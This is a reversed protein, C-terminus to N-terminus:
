KLFCAIYLFLVLFIVCIRHIRNNVYYKSIYWELTEKRNKNRKNQVRIYLCLIQNSTWFPHPCTNSISLGSFTKNYYNQNLFHPILALVLLLFSFIRIGSIILLLCWSFKLLLNLKSASPSWPIPLSGPKLTSHSVMRQFSIISSAVYFLFHKDIWKFQTLYHHM